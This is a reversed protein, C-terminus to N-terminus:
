GAPGAFGHAIAGLAPLMAPDDVTVRLRREPRDFSFRFFPCCEREVALAEDLADVDLGSAFEVVLADPERRFGEVSRALREYRARQERQGHEDLTCSAPIDSM